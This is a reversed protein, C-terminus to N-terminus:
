YCLGVCRHNVFHRRRVTMVAMRPCTAPMNRPNSIPV